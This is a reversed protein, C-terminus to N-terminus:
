RIEVVMFTFDDLLPGGFISYRRQRACGEPEDVRVTCRAPQTSTVLTDLSLAREAM